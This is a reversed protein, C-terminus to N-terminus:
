RIKRLGLRYLRAREYLDIERKEENKEIIIILYIDRRSINYDFGKEQSLEVSRSLTSLLGM